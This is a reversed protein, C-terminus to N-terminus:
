RPRLMKDNGATGEGAGGCRRAGVAVVGRSGLYNHTTRKSSLQKALESLGGLFKKTTERRRQLFAESRRNETTTWLYTNATDNEAGRRRTAIMVIKNGANWKVPCLTSRGIISSHFPMFIPVVHGVPVECGVM